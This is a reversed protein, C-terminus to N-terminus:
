AGRAAGRVVNGTATGDPLVDGLADEDSNPLGLGFAILLLALGVLWALRDLEFTVILLSAVLPSDIPGSEMIPGMVTSYLSAAFLVTSGAGIALWFRRPAEQARVASMTSWALAGLALLRLPELGQALVDLQDRLSIDINYGFNHWPQQWQIAQNADYVCLGATVVIAVAVLAKPWTTETRRRTRLGLLVLAPAAIAILSALQVAVPLIFNLATDTGPDAAFRQQGLGLVQVLAAVSGWLIAGIMIVRASEWADRRGIIVAVPLLTPIVWIAINRFDLYSLGVFLVAQLAALVIFPWAARPVRRALEALRHSGPLLSFDTTENM